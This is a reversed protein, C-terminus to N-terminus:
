LLPEFTLMDDTIAITDEYRQELLTTLLGEVESIVEDVGGLDEDCRPRADSRFFSAKLLICPRHWVAAADNPDLDGVVAPPRQWIADDFHRADEPLRNADLLLCM